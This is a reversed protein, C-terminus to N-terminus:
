ILFFYDTLILCFSLILLITQVRILSAGNSQSVSVNGAVEIWSLYASVRTFVDPNNPQACGNQPGYSTIGIKFLINLENLIFILCFILKLM